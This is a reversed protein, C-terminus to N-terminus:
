RSHNNHLKSASSGNNGMFKSLINPLQLQKPRVSATPTPSSPPSTEPSSAIPSLPNNFFFRTSRKPTLSPEPQLPGAAESSTTPDNNYFQSDSPNGIIYSSSDETISPVSPKRSSRGGLGGLGVSTSSCIVGSANMQDRHPYKAVIVTNCVALLLFFDQCLGAQPHMRLKSTDKGEILLQVDLSSLRYLSRNISVYSRQSLNRSRLIFQQTVSKLSHGYISFIANVPVRICFITLCINYFACYNYKVNPDFIILLIIIHGLSLALM